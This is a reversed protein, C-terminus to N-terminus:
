VVDEQEEKTSRVRGEAMGVMGQGMDKGIAWCQCNSVSTSVQGHPKIPHQDKLYEQPSDSNSLSEM